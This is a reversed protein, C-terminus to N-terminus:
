RGQWQPRRKELFASIGEAFDASGYSERVLDEDDPIPTAARLRRVGEKTIRLTLPALQTLSEALEQARTHLADDAVLEDFFGARRAGEGDLLKSTFVLRKVAELGIIAGVRAINGLSLCNGLTRAIPVGVRASTAGIRLDCAAALTTGGGTCAGAVAAITPIRIAEVAGVAGEIRSEYAVGDDATFGRFASIDTGSVFADGNAGTIVVARLAPDADVDQALARLEDWMAFTMANRAAPRDIVIWAIQESRRELRIV